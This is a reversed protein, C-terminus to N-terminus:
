SNQSRLHDFLKFHYSDAYKWNESLWQAIEKGHTRQVFAKLIRLVEVQTADNVAELMSVAKEWHVGGFVVCAFAIGAHQTTQLQRARSLV